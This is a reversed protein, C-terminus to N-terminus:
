NSHVPAKGNLLFDKLVKMRQPVFVNRMAPSILFRDAGETGDETVHQMKEHAAPFNVGEGVEVGTFHCGICTMTEARYIIEAPTVTSGIRRLEAAVEQEYAHGAPTTGAVFFWHNLPFDNSGRVPRQDPVLFENPIRMFYRSADRVALNKLNEILLQRYRVAKEDTRNADIMKMDAVNELVDPKM